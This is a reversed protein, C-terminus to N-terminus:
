QENVGRIVEQNGSDLFPFSLLSANKSENNKQRGGTSYTRLQKTRTEIRASQGRLTVEAGSLRAASSYLKM